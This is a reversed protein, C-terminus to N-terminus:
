ASEWFDPLTTHRDEDKPGCETPTRPLPPKRKSLSSPLALVNNGWAASESTPMCLCRGSIGCSKTACRENHGARVECGRRMRSFWHNKVSHEENNPNKVNPCSSLSRTPPQGAPPHLRYGEEVLSGIKFDSRYISNRLITPSLISQQKLVIQFSADGAWSDGCRTQPCVPTHM